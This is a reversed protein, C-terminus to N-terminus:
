GETIQRTIIEIAREKSLIRDFEKMSDEDTYVGNRDNWSLWDILEQRSWSNLETQLEDGRLEMLQYYPHNFRREDRLDFYM